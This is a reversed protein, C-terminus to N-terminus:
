IIVDLVTHSDTWSFKGIEEQQSEKMDSTFMAKFFESHLSLLLKSVPLKVGEVNLVVDDDTKIVSQESPLIPASRVVCPECQAGSGPTVTQVECDLSPGSLATDEGGFEKPKSKSCVVDTRVGDTSDQATLNEDCCEQSSSPRVPDSKGMESDINGGGTQSDPDANEIQSEGSCPKQPPEPIDSIDCNFTFTDQAPSEATSSLPETQLSSLSKSGQSDTRKVVKLNVQPASLSKNVSSLSGNDNNVEKNELDRTDEALFADQKAPEEPKNSIHSTELLKDIGDQSPFWHLTPKQQSKLLFKAQHQVKYEVAIEQVNGLTDVCSFGYICPM